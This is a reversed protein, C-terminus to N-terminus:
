GYGRHRVTGQGYIVTSGMCVYMCNSVCMCVYVCVYMCVICVAYRRVMNITKRVDDVSTTSFHATGVLFVRSGNPCELTTVADPLVSM